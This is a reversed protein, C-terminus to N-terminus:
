AKEASMVHKFGKLTLVPIHEGDSTVTGHLDVQWLLQVVTSTHGLIEAVGTVVTNCPEFCCLDNCTIVMTM